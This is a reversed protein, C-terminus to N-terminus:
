IDEVEHNDSYIEESSVDWSSKDLLLCHFEKGNDLSIEFCYPLLDQIGCTDKSIRDLSKKHNSSDLLKGYQNRTSFSPIINKKQLFETSDYASPYLLWDDIRGGADKSFFNLTRRHDSSDLLVKRQDRTFVSSIITEKEPIETTCCASSHSLCNCIDGTGIGCHDLDKRHNQSDLSEGHGDRTLFSLVINEKHSFDITHYSSSYQYRPSDTLSLCKWGVDSDLSSSFDAETDPHEHNEKFIKNISWHHNELSFPISGGKQSSGFRCEETLDIFTSTQSLTFPSDGLDFAVEKDEFSHKGFEHKSYSGSYSPLLSVLSQSYSSCPSSGCLERADFSEFMNNVILNNEDTDSNPSIPYTILGKNWCKVPSNWANRIKGTGRELLLPHPEREVLSEDLNYFNGSDQLRNLPLPEYKRFLSCDIFYSKAHSIAHKGELECSPERASCLLTSHAHYTPFELNSLCGGGLRDLWCGSLSMDLFPGNEVETYSRGFPQDLETLHFDSEPSAVFKSEVKMDVKGSIPAMFDKNEKSGSFLRGLLLSVINHGKSCLDDTEPFTTKTVWQHLRRRKESFVEVHQSIQSDIWRCYSHTMTSMHLVKLLCSPFSIEMVMKQKNIMERPKDNSRFKKSRNIDEYPLHSPFSHGIIAKMHYSSKFKKSRNENEDLSHNHFCHGGVCAKIHENSRFKKSRNEDEDLSRSHDCHALDAKLKKFFAYESTKPNDSPRSIAPDSGIDTGRVPQSFRSRSTPNQVTEGNTTQSNRRKM